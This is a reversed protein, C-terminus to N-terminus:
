CVALFIDGSISRITHLLFSFAHYFKITHWARAGFPKYTILTLTNLNKGQCEDTRTVRAFGAFDAGIEMKWALLDFTTTDSKLKSTLQCGVKRYKYSKLGCWIYRVRLFALKSVQAIHADLWNCQRPVRVCLHCWVNSM